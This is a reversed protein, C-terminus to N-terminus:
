GQSYGTYHYQIVTNNIYDASALEKYSKLDGQKDDPIKNDRTLHHICPKNKIVTYKLIGLDGGHKKIRIKIQYSCIIHGPFYKHIFTKNGIFHPPFVVPFQCRHDSDLSVALFLYYFVTNVPPLKRRNLMLFLEPSIDGLKYINGLLFFFGLLHLLQFLCRLFTRMHFSLEKGHLAMLQSAGELGYYTDALDKRGLLFHGRLVPTQGLM